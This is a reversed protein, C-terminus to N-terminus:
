CRGLDAVLNSKDPRLWCCWYGLHKSTVGVSGRPTGYSNALSRLIMEMQWSKSCPLFKSGDGCYIPSRMLGSLIDIRCSKRYCVVLQQYRQIHFPDPLSFAASEINTLAGASSFDPKHRIMRKALCWIHTFLSVWSNSFAFSLFVNSVEINWHSRSSGKLCELSVCKGNFVFMKKTWNLRGFVHFLLAERISEKGGRVLNERVGDRRIWHGVAGFINDKEDMKSCLALVAVSWTARLAVQANILLHSHLFWELTCDASKQQDMLTAITYAFRGISITKANSHSGCREGVRLYYKSGHQLTLGHNKMM